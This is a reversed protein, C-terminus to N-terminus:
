RLWKFMLKKLGSLNCMMHAWNWMKPKGLGELILEKFMFPHRRSERKSRVGEPSM